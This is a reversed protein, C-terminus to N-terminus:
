TKQFSASIVHDTMVNTFQHSKVAGLHTARDIIVDAIEYGARAVIHFTPSDGGHKVKQITGPSISGGEDAIPTIKKKRRRALLLLTLLALALLLLASLAITSLSSSTQTEYMGQVLVHENVTLPSTANVSKLVYQKSADSTEVVEAFAFAVSEGRSVWLSNALQAYNKADDSVTLITGFADDSIGDQGFTVLYQTQYTGIITTPATITIPRNDGTLICRTDKASNTISPTFRGTTAAGSNVWENAPPVVQLTNGVAAYAVQYQSTWTATETVPGNMIVQSSTESGSYGSNTGTWSKFVFRTGSGASIPTTVGFAATTGADYWGQGTPNGHESSVTLYYQTKWNVTVTKPGDVELPNSTLDTGSADGGWGNFVQRAGDNESIVSNSVPLAITTSANYWGSRTKTDEPSNITVYYQEQWTFTITHNKQVNAFTFDTGANTPGGDINYGICIWRHTANGVPSTVSATFNAGENVLGSPTPSGHPSNVAIAYQNVAFNAQITHDEAVGIFTYSDVAGVPVGDILVEYVKFGSDAMVTFSQSAGHGVIVNGSPNLAGGSSAFAGITHVDIAFTVDITHGKVINNFAYSDAAGVSDGDVRVDAVHYGAGPTFTFEQEGNFGVYVRGSPSIKGNPGASAIILLDDIEFVAQIRHSAVVNSFTYSTVAGASIEDVTVDLIHYGTAATITFSQDAGYDVLINGNPSITGNPGAQAMITNRKITYTATMVHSADIAPFKYKGQDDIAVPAGDVFVQDIQYGEHPIV